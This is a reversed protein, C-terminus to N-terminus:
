QSSTVPIQNLDAQTMPNGENWWRERRGVWWLQRLFHWLNRDGALLRPPLGPRASSLVALLYGGPVGLSAACWM